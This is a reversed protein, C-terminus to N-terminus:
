LEGRFARFQLSAFLADDLAMQCSLRSRMEEYRAISKSFSQQLSEPPVPIQLTALSRAYIAFVSTTGSKRADLQKQGDTSWLYRHVYDPLLEGDFRIRMLNNNYLRSSGRYVATKGVLERSNRTNFLLDGDTLSYKEVEAESADVRKISRLDLRGERTIADMRIYDHQRASGQEAARRDVGIQQDVMHDGLNSSQFNKGAFLFDFTASALADIQALVKRRKTRLTDAQDLIAVIRRQEPLSPLPIRIEKLKAKNLTAGMAARNSNRSLEAQGLAAILFDETILDRRKIPLAAIAENTYLPIAAKAVKGISLKFSLLVTGPTVQRGGAAGSATIQEKTRTIQPGQNM